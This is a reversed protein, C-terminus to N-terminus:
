KLRYCDSCLFFNNMSFKLVALLSLNINTVLLLVDLDNFEGTFHRLFNILWDLSDLIVMVTTPMRM